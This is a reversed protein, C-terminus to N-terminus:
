RPLLLPFGSSEKEASRILIILVYFACRSQFPTRKIKNNLKKPFKLGHQMTAFDQLKLSQIIRTSNTHIVTLAPEQTKAKARTFLLWIMVKLIGHETVAASFIGNPTYARSMNRTEAATTARAPATLFFEYEYYYEFLTKWRGIIAEEHPIVVPEPENKTFLPESCYNCYFAYINNPKKCNTCFGGFAAVALSAVIICVLFKEFKSLKM